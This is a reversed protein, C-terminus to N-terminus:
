VKRVSTRRARITMRRQLVPIGSGKIPSPSPTINDSRSSVSRTPSGRWMNVPSSGPGSSSRSRSRSLSRLGRLKEVLRERDPSTRSLSSLRRLHKALVPLMSRGISTKCSGTGTPSTPNFDLAPSPSPTPPTTPAPIDSTSLSSASTTFLSDESEDIQITGTGSGTHAHDHGDRAHASSESASSSISMSIDCDLHEVFQADHSRKDVGLLNCAASYDLPTSSVQPELDTPSLPTDVGFKPLVRADNFPTDESRTVESSAPTDSDSKNGTALDSLRMMTDPTHFSPADITTSGSIDSDPGKMPGSRYGRIPSFTSLRFSSRGSRSPVSRRSSTSTVRRHGQSARRSNQLLDQSYTVTSPPGAEPSTLEEPLTPDISSSRSINLNISGLVISHSSDRSSRRLSASLSSPHRSPVTPTETTSDRPIRSIGSFHSFNAGSTSSASSSSFSSSFKSDDPISRRPRSALSSALTDLTSARQQSGFVDVETIEPHRTVHRRAMLADLANQREPSLDQRISSIDSPSPTIINARLDDEQALRKWFKSRKQQSKLEKRVSLTLNLASQYHEPTREDTIIPKLRALLTTNDNAADRIANVLIDDPSGSRQCTTRPIGIDVLLTCFRQHRTELEQITRFDDMGRQQQRASALMQTYLETRVHLLDKRYDALDHEFASREDLLHVLQSELEIIRVNLEDIPSTYLERTPDFSPLSAHFPVFVPASSGPQFLLTSVDSESKTQRHLLRFFQM